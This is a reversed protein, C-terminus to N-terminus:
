NREPGIGACSIELPMNQLTFSVDFLPTRGMARQPQLEEVLKEFPLEQHSYAQLAFKGSAALVDEFRPDGELDTRFVLTNVLCGILGESNKQTRGAIPSGVAVDSQRCYRSLLM